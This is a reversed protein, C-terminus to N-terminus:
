RSLSCPLSSSSREFVRAREEKWKGFAAAAANAAHSQPVVADSMTTMTNHIPPSFARLKKKSNQTPPTLSFAVQSAFRTSCFGAHSRKASRSAHSLPERDLACVAPPFTAQSASGSRESISDFSSIFLSAFPSKRKSAQSRELATRSTTAARSRLDGEKEKGRGGVSKKTQNKKARPRKQDKKTAIM